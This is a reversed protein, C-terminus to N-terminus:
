LRFFQLLVTELVRIRVVRRSTSVAVAQGGGAVDIGVATDYIFGDLVCTSVFSFWSPITSYRLPYRSGATAAALSAFWRRTTTGEAEPSADSRSCRCRFAATRRVTKTAPYLSLPLARLSSLEMSKNLINKSNSSKVNTAESNGVKVSWAVDLPDPYTPNETM